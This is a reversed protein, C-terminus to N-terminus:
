QYQVTIPISGTYSGKPQNANVTLTAGVSIQLAGGSMVGTGSPTSTFTKLQMQNTGSSLIVSNDAPLSIIVGANAKNPANDTFTFAASSATSTMLLVGGTRSRVGSPSVTITGGTGAVFHGFALARSSAFTQKACAPAAPLLAALLLAVVALRNTM